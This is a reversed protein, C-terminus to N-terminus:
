APVRRPLGHDKAFRRVDHWRLLAGYPSPHSPIAGASVWDHMTVRHVQLVVAAEMPTLFDQASVERRWELGNILRYLTLNGLPGIRGRILDSRHQQYAM